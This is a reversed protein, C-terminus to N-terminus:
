FTEVTGDAKHDDLVKARFHLCQRDMKGSEFDELAGSEAMVLVNSKTKSGRDEKQIKYNYESAEITFYGEDM